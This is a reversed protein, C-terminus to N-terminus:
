AVPAVAPSASLAFAVLHEGTGELRTHRRDLHATMDAYYELWWDSTAPVILYQAGRRCLEELHAIAEGSDAPHHGAYGGDPAQPFHAARRGGLDVLQDDGRSVILVEADGPLRTRAFAHVAEVVERRWLRRELEQRRAELEELEARIRAVRDSQGASGAEEGSPTALPDSTQLLQEYLEEFRDLQRESSLLTEARRRAAEGMRRRLGADTALLALRDAIAEADRRAVVFGTVEHEVNEPLGGADSCVVPVGMAQAEIPAVGFAETMSAHVFVDAWALLDRVTEANQAGLLRAAGMLGLDAVAFEISERHDGDGVIRFDVAIGRARLAAVAQLAVEHGKKWHLRGVSLIRLPRDATGVEELPRDGPHFVNVDVADTIVAHPRDPPCGREQARRWIAESVAHIMDSGAFVDDFCGPEDLRFSNLDYGRFSTVIRCGAAAGLHMRGYALTGYGFHVIDPRLDIVRQEVGDGVVHLRGQHRIESRLEPFFRWHEENSRQCVVHVDWGRRVLGLFKRVFFTESFKPFHDTVMVVRTPRGDPRRARGRRQGALERAQADLALARQWLEPEVDPQLPDESVLTRLERLPRLCEAAFAEGLFDLCRRVTFEPDAILDAYGVTLMRRSGLRQEAELCAETGAVWRTVAEPESVKSRLRAPVQTGGTAGPSGLPPDSLARVASHVDRVVHIFRADPFMAALAEVRPTLQWSGDVWRRAGPAALGAAAGGFAAALDGPVPPKIGFAAPDEALAVAPLSRLQSALQAVWGGHLSLAIAPHQGLAAAVVSAGSREAGVVFVPGSGADEAPPAPAVTPAPAVVGRAPRQHREGGARTHLRPGALRTLKVGPGPRLPTLDPAEGAAVREANRDARAFTEEMLQKRAPTGIATAPATTLSGQRIRRFYGHHGSNVCRAVHHVRRLFEADGGFRLGMSYGGAAIMARRSVLTTPHLLPFATARERFQANGDLPWQIPVVEPEDCFVRVEQSGIMDAGAAEADALLRELRDPASWDDADQFLYADYDTDNIVQQVLRYPGSNEAATMLTVGPYRRVIGIPPEASADDIVIIGDLPRTQAVLGALCDDLYEECRYHPILALVTCDRHLHATRGTDPPTGEAAEETEGMASRDRDVQVAGKHPTTIGVEALLDGLVREADFYERAIEAAARGAAPPDAAVRQVAAVASDLDGVAFLGTGTPLVSQFGTDQTVVPRGAALFTASRDSFWGTRLRINQDKAVTFEARAGAIFDRYAGIDLRFDLAPRVDFGLRRFEQLHREQHGSLALEFREGTRAPLALFKRWETDKSWGFTDGLYQVDRWPQHFNGVTRFADGQRGAGSWLDLVVPQRTPRFDYGSPAPLLCDAAGLNEAFTFLASHGALFERAQPVGDHLEIQMQVPDTELYVLRDGAALEERPETAGHLNILLEADRLLRALATQSMGYVRGDDHLAHFAWHDGLGYPRLLRDLVAAARASADDDDREMLMTPTRAHAEVYYADFGLRQLGILYHLTQWVVGPVPIKAIMGLVVIRAAGRTM